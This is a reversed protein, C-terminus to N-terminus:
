FNYRAEFGLYRPEGPAALASESEVVTGVGVLSLNPFVQTTYDEDTLNRGIEAHTINGINLQLRGNLVFYDEGPMFRNTANFGPDASYRVDTWSYYLSALWDGYSTDTTYTLGTGFKWKPAPTEVLGDKFDVDLWSTFASLSLSEFILYNGELEMGNIDADGANFVFTSAGGLITTTQYDSYDTHYLAANLRARRDLFETKVGVEYDIVSEEDFPTTTEIIADFLESYQPGTARIQM